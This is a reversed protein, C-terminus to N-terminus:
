REHELFRRLGEMIGKTYKRQRYWLQIRGAAHDRKEFETICNDSTPLELTDETLRISDILAPQKIHFSRSVSMRISTPSTSPTSRSGNSSAQNKIFFTLQLNIVKSIIRTREHEPTKPRALRSSKVPTKDSKKPGSPQAWAPKAKGRNTRNSSRSTSRSSPLEFVGNMKPKSRQKASVPASKIRISSAFINESPDSTMRADQCIYNLLSKYM